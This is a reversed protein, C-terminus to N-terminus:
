SLMRFSLQAYIKIAVSNMITLTPLRCLYGGASQHYLSTVLVYFPTKNWWLLLLIMKLLICSTSSLWILGFLGPESLCMDHKREYAFHLDVLVHAYIEIPCLCFVVQWSSLYWPRHSLPWLYFNCCLPHILTLYMIYMNHLCWLVKKIKYTSKLFILLM